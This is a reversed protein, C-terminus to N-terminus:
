VIYQKIMEGSKEWGFEKVRELGYEIQKRREIQDELLDIGTLVKSVASAIEEPKKPDVYTPGSKATGGVEELSSNKSLVVPCGCALAELVPLGFGEYLSPFVLAQATNYLKSLDDDLWGSLIIDKKYPSNNIEQEIKDFGVGPTGVLLLQLYHKNDRLINFAQIIRRTNKKTELRGVSMIFSKTIGFKELMRHKEMIEHAKIGSPQYKYNKKDYGWPVVKIKESNYKYYKILEQKSFKSPTIILSSKRCILKNMLHLYLRSAWWYLNPWAKFASDHVISITKKPCIFPVLQGPAFFVDPKNFLFEGSLRFQSWGKLFPWKLVKVSWNNPLDALEGILPKNSYLIVRSSSPLTKKFEQILNFCVQEVGTRHKKNAHAAEIGIIM